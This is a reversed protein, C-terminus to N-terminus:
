SLTLNLETWDGVPILRGPRNRDLLITWVNEFQCCCEEIERLSMLMFATSLGDALAAQPALVWACRWTQTLQRSRPDVIHPEGSQVSVSVAGKSVDFRGLDTAEDEPDRLCMMWGDAPASGVALWSSRGASILGCDIGWDDLIGGAQDLAYGKGIGGLDIKVAADQRLVTFRESDVAIQEFGVKGARSMVPRSTNGQDETWRRRGELCAGVTPDFAGGTCEFLRRSLVLCDILESGVRVATDVRSSNARSVDSSSIFFSLARELRDVEDFVARAVGHADARSEGVFWCAFETAMATHSLHILEGQVAQSDLM